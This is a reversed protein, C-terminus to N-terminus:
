KGSDRRRQDEEWWRLYDEDEADLPKVQAEAAYRRIADAAEPSMDDRVIPVDRPAEIGLRM